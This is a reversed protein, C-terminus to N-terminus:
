VPKEVRDHTDVTDPDPITDYPFRLALYTYHKKTFWSQWPEGTGDWNSGDGALLESDDVLEYDHTFRTVSEWQDAIYNFMFSEDIERIFEGHDIYSRVVIANGSENQYSLRLDPTSSEASADSRTEARPDRGTENPKVRRSSQSNATNSPTLTDQRTPM